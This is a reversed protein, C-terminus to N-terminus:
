CASGVIRPLSAARAAWVWAAQVVWVAQVAQAV